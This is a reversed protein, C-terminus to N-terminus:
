GARSRLYRRLQLGGFVTGFSIMAWTIPEPVPTLPTIDLIWSKLTTQAGPSNDAFFLTWTTNPNGGVFDGTLDFTILTPTGASLTYSQITSTLDAYPSSELNGMRLYGTLDSSFGGQLTISLSVSEMDIAEGSFTHSDSLGITSNDPIIGAGAGGNNNFPGTSSYYLAASTPLGAAMLLGLLSFCTKM